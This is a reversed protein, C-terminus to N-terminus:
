FTLDAALMERIEPDSVASLASSIIEQEVSDPNLHNIASMTSDVYRDAQRIEPLIQRLDTIKKGNRIIFSGAYINFAEDSSKYYNFIYAGALLAATISAAVLVHRKAVPRRNIEASQSMSAYWAFMDKYQRLDDAVKRSRYYAYLLKEEDANTDGDLFLTTLRRAEDHSMTKNHRCILKIIKM